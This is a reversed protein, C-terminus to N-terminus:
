LKLFVVKCFRGPANNPYLRVVGFSWHLKEWAEGFANHTETKILGLRKGTEDAATDNSEAEDATADVEKVFNSPFLGSKGNLSGSWWGEEVQVSLINELGDSVCIPNRGGEWAKIGHM